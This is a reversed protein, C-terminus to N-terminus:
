QFSTCQPSPQVKRPVTGVYRKGWGAGYARCIECCECQCRWQLATCVTRWHARANQLTSVFYLTVTLSTVSFHKTSYFILTSRNGCTRLKRAKCLLILVRWGAPACYKSSCLILFTMQVIYRFQIDVFVCLSRSGFPTAFTAFMTNKDNWKKKSHNELFYQRWCHRSTTNSAQHSCAYSLPHM